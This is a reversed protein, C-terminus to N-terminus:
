DLTINTGPLPVTAGTALRAMLMFDGSKIKNVVLDRQAGDNRRDYKIHCAVTVPGLEGGPAIILPTATRRSKAAVTVPLSHTCKLCRMDALRNGDHGLQANLARGLDLYFETVTLSTDSQNSLSAPFYLHTEYPADSPAIFRLERLQLPASSRPKKRWMRHGMGIVGASFVGTAILWAITSMGM